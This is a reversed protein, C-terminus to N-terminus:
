YKLLLVWHLSYLHCYKFSCVRLCPVFQQTGKSSTPLFKSKATTCMSKQQKMALKNLNICGTRNKNSWSLPMMLNWLLYLKSRPTAPICVKSALSEVHIRAEWSSFARHQKWGWSLLHHFAIFKSVSLHVITGTVSASISSSFFIFLYLDLHELNVLLRKTILHVAAASKALLM